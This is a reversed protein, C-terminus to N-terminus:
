KYHLHYNEKPIQWPHSLFFSTINAKNKNDVDGAKLFLYALYSYTYAYNYYVIYDVTAMAEKYNEPYTRIKLM